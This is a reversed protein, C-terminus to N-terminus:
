SFQIAPRSMIRTYLVLNWIDPVGPLCWHICDAYTGPDAQEEPGLVKGQRITHVSTHGDKRRESMTTIDVFTIPVRPSAARSVNKAEHFMDWDMGLWLPGHWDLLPMTEKACRIGDPNGWVQPSLHLPSMSMFFVSTRAPDVNENVWRAWTTLVKRYAEIRVVEDHEEWSQGGPRMVKMNLTNMWWIYTNFVLYDVGRWNEAHAAITDAKIIRDRISHIKPDDSNSEVLFPAWYFEVTANFERPPVFGLALFSSPSPPTRVWAHFVVRQGEWSVYKKGPPSASQLLCVMSEWQNRNLSDGVFMFRKGRLREMFLKADFRPMSCDKPQWRWKQYTDDRRGNKMCTVQSTLFQCEEERYLPYSTNDFVWRGKSLDCTEPVGLAPPVVTKRAARQRRPKKAKKGAKKKIKADVKKQPTEVAPAPEATVAHQKPKEQDGRHLVAAPKESSSIDRRPVVVVKQRSASAADAAPVAPAPVRALPEYTLSRIDEGYMVIVCLVFFVSAVYVPLRGGRRLSAVAHKGGFADAGAGAGAGAGALSSSKRRGVFNM